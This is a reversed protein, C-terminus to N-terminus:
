KGGSLKGFNSTNNNPNPGSPCVHEKNGLWLSRSSVLKHTQGILSEGLGGNDLIVNM